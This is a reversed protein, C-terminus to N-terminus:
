TLHVYKSSESYNLSDISTSSLRTSVTSTSDVHENYNNNYNL